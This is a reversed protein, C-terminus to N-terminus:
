WLAMVGTEDFNEDGGWREGGHGTERVLGGVMDGGGSVFPGLL